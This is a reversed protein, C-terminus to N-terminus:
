RIILQSLKTFDDITLETPNNKFDDITSAMINVGDFGYYGYLSSDITDKIDEYTTLINNTHNNLYDIIIQLREDKIKKVCWYKPLNNTRSFIENKREEFSYLLSNLLSDFGDHRLMEKFIKTLRKDVLVMNIEKIMEM